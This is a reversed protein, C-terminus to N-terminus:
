RYLMRLQGWSQRLAPVPAQCDADVSYWLNDGGYVPDCQAWLEPYDHTSAYTRCTACPRLGGATIGPAQNNCSEPNLFRVGVFVPDTICRGAPLPITANFSGTGPSTVDVVTPGCIVDLENPALCSTGQTGVVSVQVQFTCAAWMRLKLTISNLQLCQTPTCVPCVEPQVLYFTKDWRDTTGWTMLSTGPSEPQITCMGAVASPSSAMVEDPVIIPNALGALAPAVVLIPLAVLACVCVRLSINM